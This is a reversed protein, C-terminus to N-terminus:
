TKNIKNKTKRSKFFIKLLAKLDSKTKKKILFWVVSFVTLSVFITGGVTIGAIAGVSIGEPEQEETTDEAIPNVKKIAYETQRLSLFSRYGEPIVITSM